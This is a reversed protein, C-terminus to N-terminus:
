IIFFFLLASKTPKVTSEVNFETSFTTSQMRRTQSRADPNHTLLFISFTLQGITIYNENKTAVTDREQQQKRQAETWSLACCLQRLHTDLRLCVMSLYCFGREGFVVSVSFCSTFLTLKIQARQFIEMSTKAVHGCRNLRSSLADQTPCSPVSELLSQNLLCCMKALLQNGSKHM